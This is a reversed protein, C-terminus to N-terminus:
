LHIQSQIKQYWFNEDNAICIPIIIGIKQTFLFIVNKEKQLM